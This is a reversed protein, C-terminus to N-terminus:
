DDAIAEDVMRKVESLKDATWIASVIRDMESELDTVKQREPAARENIRRM